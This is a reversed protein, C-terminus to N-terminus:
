NYYGPERGSITPTFVPQKSEPEGFIVRGHDDCVRYIFGVAEIERVNEEKTDDHRFYIRYRM